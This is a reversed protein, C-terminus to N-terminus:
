RSLTFVLRGDTCLSRRRRRVPKKHHRARQGRASREREKSCSWAQVRPKWQAEQVGSRRVTIVTEMRQFSMTWQKVERVLRGLLPDCGIEAAGFFFEHETKFNREYEPQDDPPWASELAEAEWGHKSKESTKFFQQKVDKQSRVPDLVEEKLPERKDVLTAFDDRLKVGTNKLPEKM